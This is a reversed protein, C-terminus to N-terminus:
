EKGAQIATVAITHIFEDVTLVAFKLSSSGCNIVIVCDGGM